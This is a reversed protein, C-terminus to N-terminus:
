IKPHNIEEPKVDGKELLHILFAARAEVETQFTIWEADIYVQFYKGPYKHILMSQFYGWPIMMGLETISYAPLTNMFPVTKEVPILIPKPKGKPFYWYFNAKVKIGAQKLKRSNDIGIFEIEKRM